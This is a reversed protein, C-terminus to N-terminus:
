LLDGKKILVKESLIVSIIALILYVALHVLSSLISRDLTILHTLFGYDVVLLGVVGYFPKNDNLSSIGSIYGTLTLPIVNCYVLFMKACVLVLRISESASYGGILTQILLNSLCFLGIMMGTRYIPLRILNRFWAKDRIIVLPYYSKIEHLTQIALDYIVFHFLIYIPSFILHIKSGITDLWEFNMFLYDNFNKIFAFGTVLWFWSYATIMLFILMLVHKWIKIM